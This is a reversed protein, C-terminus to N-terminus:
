RDCKSLGPEHGKPLDHRAGRHDDGEPGSIHDPHLRVPVRQQSHGRNRRCGARVPRQIDRRQGAPRQRPQQCQAPASAPASGSAASAIAYSGGGIAIAAAAAAISMTLKRSPM